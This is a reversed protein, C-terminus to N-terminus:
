LTYAHPRLTPSSRRPAKTSTGRKSAKTTQPQTSGFAHEVADRAAHRSQNVYQEILQALQTTLEEPTRPTDMVPMKWASSLHQVVGRFSEGRDRRPDGHGDGGLDARREGRGVTHESVRSGRSGRGLRGQGATAEVGARCQHAPAAQTYAAQTSHIAAARVANVSASGLLSRDALRLHSSATNGSARFASLRTGCGAPCPANRGIKAKCRAPQADLTGM